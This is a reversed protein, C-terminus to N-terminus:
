NMKARKLIFPLLIQNFDKAIDAEVFEIGIKGCLTKISNIKKTTKEKYANRMALANVKVQENTEIDIFRYPRNKFDFNIEEKRDNVWFLIVEHHQHKLHELSCVFDKSDFSSSFLDTFIVILSRKHVSQALLHLSASLSTPKKDEVTGDHLMQELLSFVYRKHAFSSKIDSSFEIHDTLSSIGFADRQKYLMQILSATSFISFAIKNPNSFSVNKVLPYYMSSSSDLILMCRLNTEEEYKKVFLKDCRAYLKWDINKTEEGINYLRHEAFEVSFGHFPSKHLGTIFGEVVQKSLLELSPYGEVKEVRQPM